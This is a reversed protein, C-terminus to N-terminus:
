WSTELFNASDIVDDFSNVVHMKHVYTSYPDNM